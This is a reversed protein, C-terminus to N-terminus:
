QEPKVKSAMKEILDGARKVARDNELAADVKEAKDPHQTKVVDLATEVVAEALDDSLGAAKALRKILSDLGTPRDETVPREEIPKRDETTSGHETTM